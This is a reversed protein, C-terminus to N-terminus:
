PRMPNDEKHLKSLDYLIPVTPNMVKYKLTSKPPIILPSVKILKLVQKQFKKTPSKLPIIDNNMLNKGLYQHKDLITVTNGWSQRCSHYMKDILPLTENEFEINSLIRSDYKLDLNLSYLDLPVGCFM